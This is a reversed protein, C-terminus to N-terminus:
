GPPGVGRAGEPRVPTRPLAPGFLGDLYARGAASEAPPAESRLDAAGAFRSVGWLLLGVAAAFFLEPVGFGGFM